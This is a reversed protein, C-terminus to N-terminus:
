FPYIVRLFCDISEKKSYQSVNTKPNKEEEKERTSM